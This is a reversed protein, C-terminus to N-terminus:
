FYLKLAIQFFRPNYGSRGATVDLFGWRDPTYSQRMRYLKLGEPTTIDVTNANLSFFGEPLQVHFFDARLSQTGPIRNNIVIQNIQTMLATGAPTTRGPRGAVAAAWADYEANTLVAENPAAFIEGADELRGNRFFPHNFANIADVRLQLRRKGDKGLPFDKRLALDLFHQTPARANDFARPANGLTGKM